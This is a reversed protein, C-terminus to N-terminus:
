TKATPRGDGFTSGRLALEFSDSQPLTSAQEITASQQSVAQQNTQVAAEAKQIEEEREQQEQPSPAPEGAQEPQGVAQKVEEKAKETSLQFETTRAQLTENTERAVLVDEEVLLKLQNMRAEGDTRSLQGDRVESQVRQAEARRCVMLDDFTSTVLEIRAHDEEIENVLAAMTVAFGASVLRTAFSDSYTTVALGVLGALKAGFVLSEATKVDSVADYFADRETAYCSTGDDPPRGSVWGSVTTTAAGVRDGIYTGAAGATEKVQQCSALALVSVTAFLIVPTRRQRSLSTTARAPDPTSRAPARFTARERSAGIVREPISSKTLM